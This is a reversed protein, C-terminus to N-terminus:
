PTWKATNGNKSGTVVVNADNYSFSIPGAYYRYTKPGDQSILSCGGNGGSFYAHCAKVGLTAAAGWNDNVVLACGRNDANKYIYLKFGAGDRTHKLNYGVGPLNDTCISSYAGAADAKLAGNSPGKNKNYVLFGAGAAVVAVVVVAILALHAVGQQSKMLKM